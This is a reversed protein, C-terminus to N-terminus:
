PEEYKGAKMDAYTPNYGCTSVSWQSTETLINKTFLPAFTSFNKLANQNVIKISEVSELSPFELTTLAENRYADTIRTPSITLGGEIARLKPFSFKEIKFDTKKEEYNDPVKFWYHGSNCGLWVKDKMFLPLIEKYKVANLNGIM